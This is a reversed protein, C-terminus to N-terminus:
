IEVNKTEILTKTQSSSSSNIVEIENMIEDM